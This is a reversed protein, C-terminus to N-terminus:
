SLIARVEDEVIDLMANVTAIAKDANGSMVADALDRHIPFSSLGFDDTGFPLAGGRELAYDLNIM